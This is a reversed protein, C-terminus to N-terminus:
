RMLIMKLVVEGRYDNPKFINYNNRDIDDIGWTITIESYENEDNTKFDNTMSDVFGTFMHDSHFWREQEVPSLQSAQVM